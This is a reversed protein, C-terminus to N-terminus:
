RQPIDRVLRLKHLVFFLVYSVQLQLLFLYIMLANFLNRSIRGFTTYNDMLKSVQFSFFVFKNVFYQQLGEFNM